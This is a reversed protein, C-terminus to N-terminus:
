CALVPPLPTPPVHQLLTRYRCLDCRALDSQSLHKGRSTHLRLYVLLQYNTVQHCMRYNNGVQVLQRTSCGSSTKVNEAEEVRPPGCKDLSGRYMITHFCFRIITQAKCGTQWGTSHMGPRGHTHTAAAAAAAILPTNLM